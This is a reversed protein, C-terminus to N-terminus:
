RPTERIVYESHGAVIAAINQASVRDKGEEPNFYNSHAEIDLSSNWIQPFSPQILEPGPLTQFRNAGFAKSAPDKGFWIDDDGQDAVEGAIYAGGPGGGFFGATGALAENKSPLKTVIDNEAAGVWVHNKGVGLEEARDVGVGPSGVLIVDDAGPIGGAEQTAAGVLRSGYSHGIATVHADHNMNTASIGDMFSNYAPAGREADSTTMVDLSQPADYGLWVIASSSGDFKQAGAATYFARKVTGDAFESDLKTGLGPVYAAVNRSTDPNGYAVIARGNGELGVGLLYMPPVSPKGLKEQIKELGGLKAQSVEDHRGELSAILLPLNERNAEDRVLSPIGDLNGIVEPFAIKYEERQEDSLSDWWEKRDAPSKDLPVTDRLYERAATSVAGVDSAVDAWTKTNVSLGPAAKLKGLGESYREDIETAERLAHAIRDAIEQAKAHHPNGHHIDIGSTRADPSYLGNPGPGYLARNNPSLMGNNGVATGGPVEGGTAKNEGGAPFTVDGEPSVPYGLAAADDLAEILRRRPSVIEASFGNLAGSVLGCEVQTYHFNEALKKLQKQAADAAKGENAADMTNSIQKGIRDAAADAADSVARYGDAAEAYEAPKLTKLAKLDM